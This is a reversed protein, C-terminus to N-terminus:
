VPSVRASTLNNLLAYLTRHCTGFYEVSNLIDHESQIWPGEQGLEDASAGCIKELGEPTMELHFQLGVAQGRYDFAQMPCAHSQAIWEAHTPLTFTDGHWHLVTLKDPFGEFVDSTHQLTQIPFWGIEKEPAPTVEGGLVGALLQAGLCVGLIHTERTLMESIYRKEDALWPYEDEDHVGMPGGMIVLLDCNRSDPLADGRYLHTIHLDHGGIEAWTAIAEPGEQSVHQLVEIHM